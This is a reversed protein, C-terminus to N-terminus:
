WGGNHLSRHCNSCLLDCKETEKLIKDIARNHISVMNIGFEKEEPTRHHFDFVAANSGNYKVGCLMCKAGKAKILRVKKEHGYKVKYSYRAERNRHNWERKYQTPDEYKRGGHGAVYRADRGYRDKSKMKTGCGCECEVIPASDYIRKFYKQRIEKKGEPSNWYHEM